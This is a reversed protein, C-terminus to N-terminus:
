SRQASAGEEEEWNAVFAVPNEMYAKLASEDRDVRYLFKDVLYRSM